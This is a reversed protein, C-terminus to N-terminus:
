GHLLRVIDENSAFSKGSYKLKIIIQELCSSTCKGADHLLIIDGGKSKRMIKSVLKDKDNIITDLSRLSWGISKLNLRKIARNIQPSTIGFPPRFLRISSGGLLHETKHLEQIIRNTTMFAFRNSHTYSHNGLVFGGDQLDKLLEQNNEINKGILFFIAGVDHKNLINLITRTSNNPGDDFSLVLKESSVKHQSSLFYNFRVEFIGYTLVSVFTIVVLFICLTPTSCWPSFYVGLGLLLFIINKTHKNM